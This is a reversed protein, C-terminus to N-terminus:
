ATRTSPTLSSGPSTLARSPSVDARGISGGFDLGGGVEGAGDEGVLDHDGRRVDPPNGGLDVVGAGGREREGREGGPPHADRARLHPGPILDEDPPDTTADREGPSQKSTAM